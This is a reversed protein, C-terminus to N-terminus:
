AIAGCVRGDEMLLDVVASFSRFQINPLTRTKHFLTRAIERGTSDGHAHLVRNRSHAGERTFELRGGEKDFEVGWEILRQIQVPGEEVLVRVAEPDCLGAGAQLTDQEHLEVKDDDSLAVAIGGQAYESASETLRDKTLVLVRGGGAAEIAARLGAVGAGIILFDTEM